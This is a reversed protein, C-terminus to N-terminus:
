LGIGNAARRTLSERHPRSVSQKMAKARKSPVSKRNPSTKNAAIARNGSRSVRMTRGDRASFGSWSERLRQESEIKRETAACPHSEFALALSLDPAESVNLTFKEKV